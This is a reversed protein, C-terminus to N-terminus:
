ELFEELAMRQAAFIKECQPLSAQLMSLVCVFVTWPLGCMIAITQVRSQLAFRMGITYLHSSHPCLELVQM